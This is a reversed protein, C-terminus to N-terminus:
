PQSDYHKSKSTAKPEREEKQLKFDHKKAQREGQFRLGVLWGFVAQLYNYKHSFLFFVGFGSFAM